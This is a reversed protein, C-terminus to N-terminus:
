KLAKKQIKVKIKRLSKSAEKWTPLGSQSGYRNVCGAANIAALHLASEVHDKKIMGAVFGAAFADGAGTTEHVKIKPPTVHYVHKKDCAVAGHKGRTVVVIEPGMNHLARLHEDITGRGVLLEAEEDNLILVHTRSLIKRLFSTGKDCLYNSPNFALKINNKEAYLALKELTKYSKGVMSSFYFWPTNFADCKLERFKLNDNAGKFVLITRDEEISDLIISYGSMDRGRVGVFNVKEKKLHKMIKDGNEDMGVKGLYAAKLGLRSFSVATNTGGGGFLFALENILIKSGSPYAILEEESHRTKIKILESETRAFVDVAASGVSVIDYNKCRVSKKGAKKAKKM